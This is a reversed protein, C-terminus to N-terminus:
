ERLEPMQSEIDFELQHRIEITVQKLQQQTMVGGNCTNVEYEEGCFYLYWVSGNYLNGITQISSSRLYISDTQM